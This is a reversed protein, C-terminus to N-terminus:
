NPSIIALLLFLTQLTEQPIAISPKTPNSYFTTFNQKVSISGTASYKTQCSDQSGSCSYKYNCSNLFKTLVPLINSKTLNSPTAYTGLITQVEIDQSTESCITTTSMASRCFLIIKLVGLYAAVSSYTDFKQSLCNTFVHDICIKSKFVNYFQLAVSM